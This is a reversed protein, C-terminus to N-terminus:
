RGLSSSGHSCRFTSMNMHFDPFHKVDTEFTSVEAEYLHTAQDDTIYETKRHLVMCDILWVCRKCM